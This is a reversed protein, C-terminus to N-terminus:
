KLRLSNEVKDGSYIDVVDIVDKSFTFLEKLFGEFETCRIASHCLILLYESDTSSFVDRFLQNLLPLLVTLKIGSMSSYRIIVNMNKNKKKLM